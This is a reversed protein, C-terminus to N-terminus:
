DRLGPETGYDRNPGWSGLVASSKKKVSYFKFNRRGIISALAGVALPGVGARRDFPHEAAM